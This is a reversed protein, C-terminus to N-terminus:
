PLPYDFSAWVSSSQGSAGIVSIAGNGADLRISPPTGTTLAFSSIGAWIASPFFGAPLDGVIENANITGVNKNFRAIFKGVKGQKSLHGAALTFGSRATITGITVGGPITLLVWSGSEYSYLGKTGDTDKWLAGEPASTFAARAAATGRYANARATLAAQVDNMSNAWDSTLNYADGPNPSRLNDPSTTPM